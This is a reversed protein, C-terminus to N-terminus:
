SNQSILCWVELFLQIIFGFEVPLKYIDYSKKLSGGGSKGLKM